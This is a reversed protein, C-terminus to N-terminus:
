TPATELLLRATDLHGARVAELLPADGQDRAKAEVDVGKDLFQKVAATNGARAALVLQDDLNPAHAAQRAAARGPALAAVIILMVLSSKM